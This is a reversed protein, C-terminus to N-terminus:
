NILINLVENNNEQTVNANTPGLMICGIIIFACISDYEVAFLTCIIETMKCTMRCATQM